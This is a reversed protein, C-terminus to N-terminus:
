NLVDHSQIKCSVLLNEKRDCILIMKSIMHLLSCFGILIGLGIEMVIHFKEKFGFLHVLNKHFRLFYFQLQPVPVM